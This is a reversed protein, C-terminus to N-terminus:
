TLQLRLYPWMIAHVHHALWSHFTLKSSSISVDHGDNSPKNHSERIKSQRPAFCNTCVGAIAAAVKRSSRSSKVKKDVIRSRATYTSTRSFGPDSQFEHNFGSLDRGHSTSFARPRAEQMTSPTPLHRQFSSECLWTLGNSSSTNTRIVVVTWLLKINTSSAM